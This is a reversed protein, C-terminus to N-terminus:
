DGALQQTEAWTVMADALRIMEGADLGDDEDDAPASEYRYDVAYPTLADGEIETIPPTLGARTALDCLFRINHTRPPEVSHLYLVAKLAKEAAQQAHFGATELTRAIPALVRLAELDGSARELLSAAFRRFEPTSMSWAVKAFRM